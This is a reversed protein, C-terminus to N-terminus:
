YDVTLNDFSLLDKVVGIYLHPRPLKVAIRGQKVSIELLTHIIKALLWELYTHRTITRGISAAVSAKLTKAIPLMEVQIAARRRKQTM